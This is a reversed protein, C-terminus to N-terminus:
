PRPSEAEFRPEGADRAPPKTKRLRPDDGPFYASSLMWKRAPGPHQQDFVEWPDQRMMTSVLHYSYVPASCLQSCLPWSPLRPIQARTQAQGCISRATSLLSLEEAGLIRCINIVRGSGAGKEPTFYLKSGSQSPGPYGATTAFLHWM